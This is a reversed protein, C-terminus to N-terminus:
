QLDELIQVSCAYTEWLCEPKELCGKLIAQLEEDSLHESWPIMSLADADINSKGPKYHIRFNMLAIACVWRQGCTDLKASTFVYTLPNNNTYVDFSNKGYMYEYFQDTLAWKLVLSELKHAPYRAKSKSLSRSAYAIVRKKREQLQYLVAGLGSGCADVHLEFPLTYDAYALVPATTCKKMLTQFADEAEQSWEM